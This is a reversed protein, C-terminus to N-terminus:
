RWHHHYHRYGGSYGFNLSLGVAPYYYPTGYYGSYYVPYVMNPQVAIVQGVPQGVAPAVVM